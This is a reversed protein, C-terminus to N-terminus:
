QNVIVREEALTQSSQEGVLFIELDDALRPSASVASVWAASNAGSM